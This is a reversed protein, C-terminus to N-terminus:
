KMKNMHEKQESSNKGEANAYCGEKVKPHQMASKEFIDSVNHSHDIHTIISSTRDKM